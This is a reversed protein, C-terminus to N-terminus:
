RAPPYDREARQSAARQAIRDAQPGGQEDRGAPDHEAGHPQRAACQGTRPLYTSAVAARGSAAPLFVGPGRSVVLGGADGCPGAM